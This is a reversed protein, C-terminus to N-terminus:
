RSMEELLKTLDAIGERVVHTEEEDAVGRAVLDLSGILTALRTLVVLARSVRIELAAIQQNSLREAVDLQDLLALVVSPQSAVIYELVGPPAHLDPHNDSRQTVACLVDGDGYMGIRRFSNSTQIEWRGLVREVSTRPPTAKAATLALDRLKQRAEPTM